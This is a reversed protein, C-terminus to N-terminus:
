LQSIPDLTRNLATRMTAHYIILHWDLPKRLLNIVKLTNWPLRIIVNGDIMTPPSSQDQLLVLLHLRPLRLSHSLSLSLFAQVCSSVSLPFCLSSTPSFCSLHFPLTIGFIQSVTYRNLTITRPLTHLPTSPHLIAWQIVFLRNQWNRKAEARFGWGEIEERGQM